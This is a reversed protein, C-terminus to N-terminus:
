YETNSVSNINAAYAVPLQLPIPNVNLFAVDVGSLFPGLFTIKAPALIGQDGVNLILGQTSTNLTRAYGDIFHSNSAGSSTATAGFILKGYIGPTRTTKTLVGAATPGFKYAGSKLTVISNDKIYLTGNNQLQAFSAFSSMLALSLVLRQSRILRTASNLTITKLNETKYILIM